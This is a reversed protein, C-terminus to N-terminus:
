RSRNGASDAGRRKGVLERNLGVGEEHQNVPAPIAGLVPGGIDGGGCLRTPSRRAPRIGARTGSSNNTYGPLLDSRTTQRRRPTPDPDPFLRRLCNSKVDGPHASHNENRVTDAGENGM